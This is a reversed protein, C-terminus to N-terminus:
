ATSSGRRTTRTSGCRRSAAGAVLAGGTAAAELARVVTTGIAIVRGNHARAAAIADITASPLEYAEPWPLARDLAAEAAILAV